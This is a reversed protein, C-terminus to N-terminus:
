LIKRVWGDVDAIQGRQIGVLESKLASTVPGGNGDGIRTTDIGYDQKDCAKGVAFGVKM